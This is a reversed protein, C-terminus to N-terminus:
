FEEFGQLLLDFDSGQTDLLPGLAILMIWLLQVQRTDNELDEVSLKVQRRKSKMVTWPPVASNQQTM